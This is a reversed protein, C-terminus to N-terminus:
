KKTCAKQRLQVNALITISIFQFESRVMQVEYHYTEELGNIDLMLINGAELFMNTDIIVWYPWKM